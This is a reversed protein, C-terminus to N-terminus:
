VTEGQRAYGIYKEMQYLTGYAGPMTGTRQFGHKQYFGLAPKNVESCTLELRDRGMPRYVSVAKGILQIGIGGGRKEPELYLFPIYGKNQDQGRQTDLQLVGIRHRGAMAFALGYRCQQRNRKAEEWFFSGTYRDLDGYLTKWADERCAEYYARDEPRDPDAPSFWLNIDPKTDNKNWWHQRALTSIEENLHSNDDTYVVHVNGNEIELCSVATNDSHGMKKMETPGIGLFEALCNRMLTGHAFIAVTQDPHHAAIDLIAATGRKRIEPFSEGGPARFDPSTTQFLKMTEHEELDVIAWSRDEWEGMSIERLDKRTHLELGKPEYIARATTRTRFLDSSYVADIPVDQFREKLAQIQRYGNDTILSDYQGHIRRYLNGEAEAHRILYITTM